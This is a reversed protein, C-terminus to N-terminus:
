AAHTRRFMADRTKLSPYIIRRKDHLTASLQCVTTRWSTHQILLQCRATSDLMSRLMVCCQKPFFFAVSIPCSNQNQFDLTQFLITLTHTTTLSYVHHWIPCFYFQVLLTNQTRRYPLSHINNMISMVKKVFCM